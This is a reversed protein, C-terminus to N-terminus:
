YNDKYPDTFERGALRVMRKKVQRRLKKVRTGFTRPIDFLPKDVEAVLNMFVRTHPTAQRPTVGHMSEPSNVFLVLINRDYHVTNALETHRNDIYIGDYSRAKDKASYGPKFRRIELDGGSSDDEDGRLYLMASFLKRPSDIHNPKVSRARSVPTNGAIQADLLVDCNNFDDTGREGSRLRELAARDPFRAPYLTTIAGAFLDIVEEYFQRSVHYAILDKWDGSISENGRVESSAYSWRVNNRSPDAGLADPPPYSAILRNCLTEPLADRIIAYPYPTAHLEAAHRNQLVSLPAQSRRAASRTTDNGTQDILAHAM